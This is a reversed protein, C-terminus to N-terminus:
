RGNYRLVAGNRKGTLKGDLVAPEGNVFVDRIGEPYQKPNMGTATEKIEDMNFITIDACMGEKILGRDSLRLLKAADYTMQRILQELRVVHDEKYYKELLHVMINYRRQHPMDGVPIGDSGVMGGGQLLKKFSEYSYIENMVVYVLGQNLRILEFIADFEDCRMEDAIQAISMGVYKQASQGQAGTIIINKWNTTDKTLDWSEIVPGNITAEYDEKIKKCIEPNNLRKLLEEVGGASAWPPLLSSIATSSECYYICDYTVKIGENRAQEIHELARDLLPWCKPYRVGLHSLNLEAGSRRCVELFSDVSELFGERYNKMHPMIVRHYEGVVKGLEVLENMDSFAMPLYMLGTSLGFAGDEFSEAILHKMEELEEKDPLRNDLGMVCSRVAGHSVMSMTNVAPRVKEVADLYESFRHWTFPVEEDCLTSQCYKKWPFARNDKTEVYPAPTKGCMGCIHTTIGQMLKHDMEPHVLIYLDDHSHVDIFGPAVIFGAADIIKEAEPQEEGVYVIKGKSIGINGQFAKEGSGDVIMGNKILYEM